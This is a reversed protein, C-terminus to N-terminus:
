ETEGKALRARFLPHSSSADAEALTRRSPDVRVPHFDPAPERPELLRAVDDPLAGTLAHLAAPRLAEALAQCVVATHEATFSLGGPENLAVRELLPSLGRPRGREAQLVWAGLTPPLEDALEAAQTAHLQGALAKLVIETLHGAAAPELGGREAVRRLLEPTSMTM